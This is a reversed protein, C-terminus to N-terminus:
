VHVRGIERLGRKVDFETYLSPEIPFEEKCLAALRDIEPSNIVSYDYRAM